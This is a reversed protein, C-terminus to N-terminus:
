PVSQAHAYFYGSWFHAFCKDESSLATSNHIAAQAQACAHADGPDFEVIEDETDPNFLIVRGGIQQMLWKESPLQAAM